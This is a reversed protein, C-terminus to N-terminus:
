RGVILKKVDDASEVGDFLKHYHPVNKYAFNIMVRLQKEQEEKLEEYTKWQNQVLKKYTCYFNRDGVQYALIFLQKHSMKM